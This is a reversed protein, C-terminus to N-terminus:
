TCYEMELITFAGIVEASLSLSLSLTGGTPHDASRIYVYVNTAMASRLGSSIVLSCTVIVLVMAMIVMMVTIIVTTIM